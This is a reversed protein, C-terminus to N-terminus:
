SFLKFTRDVNEKIVTKLTDRENIIANRENEIAALQTDYYRDKKDIKKMDAEYQAEAKKLDKEDSVEMIFTEVSVSTNRIGMFEEYEADSMNNIADESMNAFAAVQEPNFTTFVAEGVNVMNVLWTYSAAQEDTVVTVGRKIMAYMAIANAIDPDTTDWFYENHDFVEDYHDLVQDYTGDWEQITKKDYTPTITQNAAFKVDYEAPDYMTNNTYKSGSNILTAISAMNAGAQIDNNLNALYQKDAADSTNYQAIWNNIDAQAVENGSKKLAYFLSTAINSVSPIEIEGKQVNHSGTYITNGSAVGRGVKGDLSAGTQFAATATKTGNNIDQALASGLNASGTGNIFENIATNLYWLKANDTDNDSFSKLFNKVKTEMATKDAASVDPDCPDYEGAKILAAIINDMYDGSGDANISPISGAMQFSVLGGTSGTSQVLSTVDNGDNDLIIGYPSSAGTNNAYGSDVFNVYKQDESNWGAGSALSITISGAFAGVNSTGNVKGTSQCKIIKCYDDGDGWYLLHGVFGGVNNSGSVNGGSYANVIDTIDNSGHKADEDYYMDGALGGVYDNGSVNGIAYCNKLDFVQHPSTNTKGVLGGAYSGTATINASSYVNDWVTKSVGDDGSKASPANGVLGGVYSSGKVIGTTYCNSIDTATASGILGGVNSSGNININELGVNKVTANSTSAFLGQTGTLNTIKHGNGDFTGAFNSIGSWGTVGSMDIDNALIITTGATNTANALQALKQLGAADKVTYTGGATLETTAGTIETAGATSANHSPDFKAYGELASYDIGGEINAVPNYTHQVDNVPAKTQQNSIRTFDIVKDTDDVVKDVMHKEDRYVPVQKNVPRATKNKGTTDQVFTDLDRTEDASSVLGYKAAVAPTVLVKGDLSQLFLINKSTEGNWNGIIGNEMANLTADKFTMTGDATLASYQLKTADLRELYTEYVKDSDNALRLKDAELKQAKHEISHLRATLTLLRAQSSSMGM